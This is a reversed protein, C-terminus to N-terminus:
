FLVLMLHTSRIVLIGLIYGKRKKEDVGSRTRIIQCKTTQIKMRTQRQRGSNKNKQETRSQCWNDKEFSQNNGKSGLSLVDLDLTQILKLLREYVSRSQKM